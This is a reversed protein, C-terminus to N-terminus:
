FDPESDSSPDPTPEFNKPPTARPKTAKNGTRDERAKSAPKPEAAVVKVTGLSGDRWEILLAMVEEAPKGSMLIERLTLIDRIQNPNM